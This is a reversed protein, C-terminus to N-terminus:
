RDAGAITLGFSAANIAYDMLNSGHVTFPLVRWNSYSPSKIKVHQLRGDRVEVAYFLSGRPSEAWGLGFGSGASPWEQRPPCPPSQAIAVIMSRIADLSIQLEQARIQARAHADGATQTPVVPPVSIAWGAYPHDRRLDRNLGSAREVPGTAGQDLAVAYDLVGTTILRDLHSATAEMDVLYRQIVPMLAAIGQDLAVFTSDPLHRALGGPVIMGRLLRHGSFVANLQKAQEELWFGQASAVKLTTTKALEGFYHLHNYVRELEGFVARILAIREPIELGVAQELASSYALAHAVCGVGSVREALMLGHNPTLGQMRQEIQRHKYFLRVRHHLILEGVYSYGFAATERVDGHVPGWVLHQVAERGADIPPLRLAAPEEASFLPIESAPHNLLPDLEPHGEFVLGYRDCAEREYWSLLPAIPTLSPLSGTTMVQLGIFQASSSADVTVRTSLLYRMLWLSEGQPMAWAMQFRAGAACLAEAEPVLAEPSLPIWHISSM